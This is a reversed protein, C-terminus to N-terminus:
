ACASSKATGTDATGNNSATLCKTTTNNEIDRKTKFIEYRELDRSTKAVNKGEAELNLM